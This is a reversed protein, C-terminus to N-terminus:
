SEEINDVSNEINNGNALVIKAVDGIKDNEDLKILKVGQTNRGIISIKGIHQRIVVGKETILIIDENDVV